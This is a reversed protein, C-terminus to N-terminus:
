VAIFQSNLLNPQLLCLLPFALAGNKEHSLLFVIGKQPNGHPLAHKPGDSEIGWETTEM